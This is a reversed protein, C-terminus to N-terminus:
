VKNGKMKEIYHSDLYFKLSIVTGPFYEEMYKVNNSDAPMYIDNKENFAIIKREGSGFVEDKNFQVSKMKYNNGFNIWTRGSVISMKPKLGSDSGGILCFKEIMNVTGSGRTSYGTVEKTRLRSIGDQLALVTYLTEENWSFDFYKKHRQLMKNLKHSTEVSSSNKLGEYITEGFNLFVLQMEGYDVNENIQYHGQICWTAAKGGHIECNNVVEGLISSFMTLGDENLEFKQTKLCKNFYLTLDTAINGADAGQNDHMGKLTEFREIKGQCYMITSQAQLHYPLGSAYLIDRSARDEPYSGSMNLSNDKSKRYKEVALIIMDMITSASLGLNKCHTHNFELEKTQSQMALKYVNKLVRIAVEPSDSMSFTEPIYVKEKNKPIHTGNINGFKKKQLHDLVKQNVKGVPDINHTLNGSRIIKTRRKKSRRKQRVIKRQRRNIYLFLKRKGKNKMGKEKM